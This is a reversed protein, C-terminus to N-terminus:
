QCGMQQLLQPTKNARMGDLLYEAAQAPSRKIGSQPYLRHIGLECTTVVRSSALQPSEKSGRARFMMPQGSWPVVEVFELFTEHGPMMRLNAPGTFARVPESLGWLLFDWDVFGDPISNPLVNLHGGVIDFTIVAMTPDAAPIINAIGTWGDKEGFDRQAVVNQSLSILVTGGLVVCRLLSM